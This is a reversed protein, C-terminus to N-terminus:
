YLTFYVTTGRGPASEIWVEGGHRRIIRQVTALGIGTGEFEDASHMRQFPAFLKDGYKMDFGAGNDRVFYINKSDKVIMGAEIEAYTQKSTFKWANEFLNVLVIRMLNNDARVKLSPNITFRVQREPNRGRLEEIITKALSTMNVEEYNMHSRSVRSLDLLDDILQSMHQGASCIRKLFDRGDDDLIDYYDELLVKSFGNISRLPARLDHSVSYSFAELEKNAAELQATRETVRQELETNLRKIENEANRRETIDEFAVLIGTVNGQGDHLPVKSTDLWSQSGDARLAPEIIHYQPKNSEMVKRDCELFFETEEKKWPLDWDTKGVIEEADSLGIMRAYNKNCGLFVSNRDKWCIFQPISDMVKQLMQRASMIEEQIKKHETIDFFITAFYGKEIFAVSISFYKNMPPFYTEFKYPKGPETLSTFERLYPPSETRYVETALKHIVDERKLKLMDEYIPNVDIIEYNVPNGEDNYIIRHIAVGEITANFLSMFRTESIKIAEEALKRETIDTFSTYVQYPKDEGPLFQPVASVVIWRYKDEKQNFVGMIKDKVPLGTSLSIMSPHEHGPLETGDENIIKWSKETSTRGLMDDRKLGLMKEAAPNASIIYGEKDQYVIGQAMTEFLFRYKEESENLAKDSLPKENFFAM